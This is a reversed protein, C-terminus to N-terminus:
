AAATRGPGARAAAEGSAERRLLAISLTAAWLLYAALSLRETVGLWPTPLQAALRPVQVCTLFGFILMAAIAGASFLRFGKGFARAAFAIALVLLVVDAGGLALHMTDTFGREAGRAHMPFFPWAFGLFGVAIVLLAAIRLSREGVQWIGTGFAIFLVSYGLYLPALLDRTPAGIASMESIAQSAYSYGPFSLAGALDAGLYLLTSLFGCLLLIPRAM